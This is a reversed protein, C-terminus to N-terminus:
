LLSFYCCYYIINLAVAVPLCTVLMNPPIINMRRNYFPLIEKKGKTFPYNMLIAEPLKIGKENSYFTVTDTKRGSPKLEVCDM